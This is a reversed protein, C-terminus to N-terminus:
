WILVDLRQIRFLIEYAQEEELWAILNLSSFINLM